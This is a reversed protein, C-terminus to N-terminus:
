SIPLIDIEYEMIWERWSMGKKEVLSEAYQAINDDIILREKEKRQQKTMKGVITTYDLFLHQHRYGYSRGADYYYTIAAYLDQDQDGKYTFKLASWLDQSMQNKLKRIVVGPLRAGNSQWSAYSIGHEGFVPCMHSASYFSPEEFWISLSDQGRFVFEMPQAKTVWVKM